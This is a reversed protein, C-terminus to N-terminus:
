IIQDINTWFVVYNWPFTGFEPPCKSVRDMERTEKKQWNLTHILMGTVTLCMIM